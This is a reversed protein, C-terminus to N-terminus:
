KETYNITPMGTPAYASVAASPPDLMELYNVFNEGSPPIIHGTTLNAETGLPGFAIRVYTEQDDNTILLYARSTNQGALQMTQGGTLTFSTTTGTIVLPPM